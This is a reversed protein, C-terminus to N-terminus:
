EDSFADDHHLRDLLLENMYESNMVGAVFMIDSLKEERGVMENHLKKMDEDFTQLKNEAMHRKRESEECMRLLTTILEKEQPPVPHDVWKFYNCGGAVYNAVEKAADVGSGIEVWKKCNKNEVTAIKWPTTDLLNLRLTAINYTLDHFSAVPVDLLKM